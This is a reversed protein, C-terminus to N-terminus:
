RHAWESSNEPIVTIGCLSIYDQPDEGVAKNLELRPAAVMADPTAPFVTPGKQGHDSPLLTGRTNIGHGPHSSIM